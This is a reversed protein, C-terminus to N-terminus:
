VNCRLPPSGSVHLQLQSAREERRRPFEALRVGTAKRWIQFIDEDVTYVINAACPARKNNKVSRIQHKRVTEKSYSYQSCPCIFQLFHGRCHEKHRRISPAVHSCINCTRKHDRGMAQNILRKTKETIYDTRQNDIEM